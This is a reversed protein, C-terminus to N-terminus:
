KEEKKFGYVLFGNEFYKIRDQFKLWKFLFTRAKRDSCSVWEGEENLYFNGKESSKKFTTKYLM